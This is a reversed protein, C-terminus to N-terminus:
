LTLDGRSTGTQPPEQSPVAGSLKAIACPALVLAAFIAGALLSHMTMGRNHRLVTVGRVIKPM